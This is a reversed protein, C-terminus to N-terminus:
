TGVMDTWIIIETNEFSVERISVPCGGVLIDQIRVEMDRDELEKLGNILEQVTM